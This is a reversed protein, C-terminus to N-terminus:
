PLQERLAQALFARVWRSTQEHAQARDVGTGDICIGRARLKGYLSCVPKFVYHGTGALREWRARPVQAAYRAANDNEPTSWDQDGSVLLTPRAVQHLGEDAFVRATGPALGVVAAFRGDASSQSPVPGAKPYRRLFREPDVKAGALALVASGGASHGIAAVRAPDIVPGWVPHRLMADLAASLHGARRWIQTARVKDYDTACVGPHAIAVAVYGAQVLREALWSLDYRTGRLGHSLLVLPRRHAQPAVAGDKVALGLFVAEYRQKTQPVEPTTPYWVVAPMRFHEGHADAEM